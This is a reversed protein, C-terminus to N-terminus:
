VSCNIKLCRAIYPRDILVYILLLFFPLAPVRYRVSAGLVPTVTGILIGMGLIFSICFLLMRMNIKKSRKILAFLLIIMYFLNEVGAMGDLMSRMEWCGPRFYTRWVASPSAKLFGWLDTFRPIDIVSGAAVSTAVNFFDKQKVSLVGIVDLSPVWQSIFLGFLIFGHIFLFVHLMKEKRYSSIILFLIGPFIALAVYPKIFLSLLVACALLLKNPGKEDLDKLSFLLLGMPLLVLAEKLPASGWFLLSPAVIFLLSFSWPPLKYLGSIGKFMLIIGLLSILNFLISHVQYEGHSFFAMVANVRIMARNDNVQILEYSRDWYNLEHSIEEARESSHNGSFLEFFLEPKEHFSEKIRVGDDFYKFVDAENRPIDIVQAYIFWVIVGVAVKLLFALSIWLPSLGEIRMWSWKFILVLGFTLSLLSILLTM